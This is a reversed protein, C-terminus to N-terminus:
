KLYELLQENMKHLGDLRLSYTTVNEGDIYAYLLGACRLNFIHDHVIGKSIGADKVIETFTKREGSLSQLIRLRSKEGLSRITRYMFPSMEEEEALSIRASYHCITIKGYHYIINAPQFHFQPILILKQLGDIPNFYFGNTTQNIFDEPSLVKLEEKKQDAHGQLRRTVEPKQQSFYQANWERLLFLMKGRFAEMQVPFVTVFESLTEYIEGVTLGEIWDLVSEVSEKCPCQYILLNLTKWDNNLETEDLLNLLEKSLMNRTEVAWAQGLDIKKYSKRCIFTHVSNLLEYVPEFQVEVEYNM